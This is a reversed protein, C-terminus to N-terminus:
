ATPRSKPPVAFAGLGITVTIIEEDKLIQMAMEAVVKSTGAEESITKISPLRARLEGTQIMERLQDAIQEYMPQPSDRDVTLRRRNTVWSISPVGAPGGM